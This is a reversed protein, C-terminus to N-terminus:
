TTLAGLGTAKLYFLAACVRGDHDPHGREGLKQLITGVTNEVTRRRIGLERALARNSLGQAVGALIERERPTLTGISIKAQDDNQGALMSVLEPSIATGHGAVVDIASILDMTNRIDARSLIGVGQVDLDLLESAFEPTAVEALVIFGVSERASRALRFLKVAGAPTVNIDVLLVDVINHKLHRLTAEIGSTVATVKVGSQLSLLSALSDRRFENGDVILVTV